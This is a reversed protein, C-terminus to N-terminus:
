GGLGGVFVETPCTHARAVLEHTAGTRLTDLLGPSLPTLMIETPVSWGASLQAVLEPSVLVLVSAQESM